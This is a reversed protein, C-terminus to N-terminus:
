WFQLEIEAIKGLFVFLKEGHSEFCRKPRFGSIVCFSSSALGKGTLNGQIEKALNPLHSSKLIGFYLTYNANQPFNLLVM